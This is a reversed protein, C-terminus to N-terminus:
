IPNAFRLPDIAKLLRKPLVQPEGNLHASLVEAMLTCLAVGRSGLASVVYLGQEPAAFAPHTASSDPALTPTITSTKASQLAMPGCLPLRDPCTSRVGSWDHFEANKPTDKHLGPFMALLHSLNRLRSALSNQIHAQDREFTSGIFYGLGRPSNLEVNPTWSITGHVPVDPWQPSQPSQPSQARPTNSGQSDDKPVIPAAAAQGSPASPQLDNMWGLTIQGKIAQLPWGKAIEKVRQVPNANPGTAEVPSSNLHCLLAKTQTGAAVILTQCRVEPNPTSKDSPALLIRWREPMEGPSLAQLHLVPAPSLTEINPHDLLKAIFAQPRLWGAARHWLAMPETNTNTDTEDGIRSVEQSWDSYFPAAMRASTQQALLAQDANSKSPKKYERVGTVHEIGLSSHPDLTKCYALLMRIGARILRSQINDDGTSMPHFLAMPLGHAGDALPRVQDDWGVGQPASPSQPSRTDLVRVRWGRTALSRAVSAGALGAGIVLCSRVSNSDSPADPTPYPALWHPKFTARLQERKPALGPVIDFEFGANSLSEKVVKSVSWTAVQTGIRCHSAVGKLTRANWMQPNKVPSFGDLYVSDFEGELNKMAEQVDAVILTLHVRGQGLLLAHFGPLLGWYSAMLEHALDHLEPWAQVSHLLDQASVPHAEVSVYHLHEPAHPDDRWAQWTALFNLGLGFGTELIRWQHQGRWLSKEGLLNCGALFVHRAQDLGGFGNTGSSRYIDNFRPSFPM